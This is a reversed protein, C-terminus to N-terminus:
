WTSRRFNLSQEQKYVVQTQARQSYLYVEPHIKNWVVWPIKIMRLVHAIYTIRLHKKTNKMWQYACINMITEAYTDNLSKGESSSLFKPQNLNVCNKRIKRVKYAFCVCINTTRCAYAFMEAKMLFVVLIGTHLHFTVQANMM